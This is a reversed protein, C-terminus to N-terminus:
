KQEGSQAEGRHRLEVGDDGSLLQALRIHELFSDGDKMIWKEGPHPSGQQICVASVQENKLYISVYADMDRFTLCQFREGSANKRFRSAWPKPLGLNRLESGIVIKKAEVLEIVHSADRGILILQSSPIFIVLGVMLMIGCALCALVVDKKSRIMM